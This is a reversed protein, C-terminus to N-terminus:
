VLNSIVAQEMVEIPPDIGTWIKFAAAGQHVLMGVGNITEAGAAKAAAILRTELPNYILEYVLLGTRLTGAPVPPMEDSRPSMGVPTTNVLLETGAVQSSLGAIDVASVAKRGSRDNVQDALRVARERTRSALVINAGESALATLNRIAPGLDDPRVSFPIYIYALDLAAIAANHM